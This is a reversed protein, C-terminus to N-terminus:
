HEFLQPKVLPILGHSSSSRFSPFLLDSNIDSLTYIYSIKDIYLSLIESPNFRLGPLDVVVGINSEGVQYSKGKFFTLVWSSNEREVDSIKLERVEEYRAFSSFMTIIFAIFRLDILSIEDLSSTGVIEDFIRVLESYSVPYAKKTLTKYKRRLGKVFLDVFHSDTPSPLASNLRWYYRIASRASM